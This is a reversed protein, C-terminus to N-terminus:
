LSIGASQRIMANNQLKLLQTIAYDNKTEIAELVRRLILEQNMENGIKFQDIQKMILQSLKVSDNLLIEKKSLLRSQGNLQKIQRNLKLMLLQYDMDFQAKGQRWENSSRQSTSQVFSLPVEISIGIQDDTVNLTETNKATFSMNWPAADSSSSQLNLSKQKWRNLLLQVDPHDTLRTKVITMQKEAIIEPMESLGTVLTYQEMWSTMKLRSTLMDIQAKNSEKQILLLGYASAEGADILKLQNNKLKHLINEKKQLYDLKTKEIKYNWIAERILGSLHLKKLNTQQQKIKLDLSTLKQDIDRQFNSKIALNLSIELEDASTDQQGKLYNFKASPSAALWSSTQLSPIKGGAKEPNISLSSILADSMSVSQIKAAEKTQPTGTQTSNAQGSASYLSMGGILLYVAFLLSAILLKELKM